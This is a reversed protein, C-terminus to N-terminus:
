APNPLHFATKSDVPNSTGCRPCTSACGVVQTPSKAVMGSGYKVKCQSCEVYLEDVDPNMLSFTYEAAFLVVEKERLSFQASYLSPEPFALGAICYNFIHVTGEGKATTGGLRAIEDGNGFRSVVLAHSPTSPLDRVRVHFCTKPFQLPWIKSYVRDSFIGVVSIQGSKEARIDEAMLFAELFPTRCTASESM